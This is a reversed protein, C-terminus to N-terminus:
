ENTGHPFNNIIGCLTIMCYVYIVIDSVLLNVIVVCYANPKERTGKTRALEKLNGNWDCRHNKLVRRM